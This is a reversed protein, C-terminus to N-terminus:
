DGDYITYYGVYTAADTHITITYDDPMSSVSITVLGDPTDVTESVSWASNDASVTIEAEGMDIPFSFMLSTDTLWANIPAPAGSTHRGGSQSSYKKKIIPISVSPNNNPTDAIGISFGCILFTLFIFLEKRM